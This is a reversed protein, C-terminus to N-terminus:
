NISTRLTGKRGVGVQNCYKSLCCIDCRPYQGRCVARGHQVCYIHFSYRLSSPMIHELEDHLKRYSYADVWGLRRSIRAVHTDVPLVQFGLSYMMICRASKLGIGPLETLFAEVQEQPMSKLRRLSLEGLERRIHQLAVKIRKAKQSALGGSIIAEEIEEVSAREAERWSRFRSKFVKYSTTFGPAHTRLSLIIYLYEDM